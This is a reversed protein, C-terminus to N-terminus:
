PAERYPVGNALAIRESSRLKCIRFNRSGNLVTHARSSTKVKGRAFAVPRAAASRTERGDRLSLRPRRRSLRDITGEPPHTTPAAGHRIRRLPASATGRPWLGPPKGAEHAFRGGGRLPRLPGGSSQRHHAPRGGDRPSPDESTEQPHLLRRIFAALRDDGCGLGGDPQAERCGPFLIPDEPREVLNEGVRVERGLGPIRGRHAGPKRPPDRFRGPLPERLRFGPPPRFRADTLEIKQMRHIALLPDHAPRGARAGPPGVRRAALYLCDRFSFIKLPEIRYEKVVGEYAPRYSVRCVRHEEMAQRLRRITEAHARYDIAGFPLVAFPELFEKRGAPSLAASKEIGRLAERALEPGLLHVTFARCMQLTTVEEATLPVAPGGLSRKKLRFYKRRERITEEIDVSYARRIDDILRLVTQKSCGLLRALDTLSHSEQSFLLRAFLSVLKEGYTRYTSIKAAM